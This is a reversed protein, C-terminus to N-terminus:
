FVITYADAFGNIECIQSNECSKSLHNTILCQFSGILANFRGRKLYYVAMDQLRSFFEVNETRKTKELKWSVWVVTNQRCEVPLSYQMKEFYTNDKTSCDSNRNKWYNIYLNNRCKLENEAQSGLM